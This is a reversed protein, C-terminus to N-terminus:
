YSGKKFFRSCVKEILAKERNLSSRTQGLLSFSQLQARPESGPHNSHAVTNKLVQGSTLAFHKSRGHQAEWIKNRLAFGPSVIVGDKNKRSPDSSVSARMKDYKPLLAANYREALAPVSISAGDRMLVLALATMHNATIKDETIEALETVLGMMKDNTEKDYENNYTEVRAKLAEQKKAQTAKKNADRKSQQAEATAKAKKERKPKVVVKEETAAEAQPTLVAQATEIKPEENM